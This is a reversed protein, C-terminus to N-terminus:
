KTNGEMAQEIEALESQLRAREGELRARNAADMKEILEDHSYYEIEIEQTELLAYNYFEGSSLEHTSVQIDVPGSTMHSMRVAYIYLTKKM